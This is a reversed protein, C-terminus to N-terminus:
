FMKVTIGTGTLFFWRNNGALHWTKLFISSKLVTIIYLGYESLFM